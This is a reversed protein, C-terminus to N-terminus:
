TTFGNYTKMVESGLSAVSVKASCDVVRRCHKLARMVVADIAKMNHLSVSPFRYGGELIYRPERTSIGLQGTHVSCGMKRNGHTKNYM